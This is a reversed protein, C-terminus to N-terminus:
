KLVEFEHHLFKSNFSVIYARYQVSLGDDERWLPFVEFQQTLIISVSKFVKEDQSRLRSVENITSVM